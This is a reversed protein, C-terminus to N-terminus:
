PQGELAAVRATLATIIAQQEQIAKLLIFPLVSQKLSKYRTEDDESVKEKDDQVLGPFVQEVEQAILGLERPKGEEDNRWNYKVVRLKVVDELYGDRTTEINKKLRSDSSFSSTGNGYLFWNGVTNTNGHLFYSSTNNGNANLGLRLVNYGSTNASQNLAAVYTGTGTVGFKETVTQTTQGVLFNGSSDFRGREVGNTYFMVANAGYAYMTLGGGAGGSIPADDGVYFSPSGARYGRVFGGQATGGLASTRVERTAQTADGVQLAAAPSATGVGVNGSTDTVLTNAPTLDAFVVGDGTYGGDNTIGTTGNLVIAM